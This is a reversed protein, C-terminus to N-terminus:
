SIVCINPYEISGASIDSIYLVQSLQLVLGFTFIPGQSNVGVGVGVRVNVGVMVGVGLKLGVIVGVGVSERVGVIVFEGLSVGVGVTVDVGGLDAVGVIVTVGVVVGLGVSVGVTVGVIVNVGVGEGVVEVPITLALKNISNSAVFYVLPSHISPVPLPFSAVIFPAVQNDSSPPINSKSPIFSVM